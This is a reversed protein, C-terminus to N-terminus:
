LFKELLKDFSRYMLVEQIHCLEVHNSGALDAITQAVKIIKHYARMSINMSEFHERVYSRAEKSIIFIKDSDYGNLDGNLRGDKNREKQIKQCTEIRRLISESNESQTSITNFHVPSLGIQLDIRDLLPGSLKSLYNKIHAFSCRCKKDLSWFYGCPCPNFAAVLTFKAPFKSSYHARKIRVENEELIQRLMELSRTGFETFEDLFLVGNHALSVEGPTPHMGGGILGAYTISHHPNRFPRQHVISGEPLLDSVSYMTTSEVKEKFSMGPMISPIRQALMTKGSGPPGFLLIHHSGAAAIELVRKAQHQGYVQNMDFSYSISKSNYPKPSSFRREIIDNIHGVGVICVKDSIIACEHLNERPVLLGKCKMKQSALAIPLCGVVRKIDGYLSLEGIIILEKIADISEKKLCGLSALVALLIPLDFSSGIKDVDSPSLNIVVSFDPISIEGLKLYSMIKKKLAPGTRTSMGLVTINFPGPGVIAEVDIPIADVGILSVTKLITFTSSM